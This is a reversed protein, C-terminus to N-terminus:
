ANNTAPASGPLRLSKLTDAFQDIFAETALTRRRNRRVLIGLRLGGLRTGALSISKIAGAENRNLLGLPTFFAVGLGGKVLGRLVQLNNSSALTRGSRELVSLEVDILSRLPEIDLQLLLSYQACESITVQNHQALPHDPAVMAMVPMPVDHRFEMDEPIALDFTIGLDVEGEAVLSSIEPHTGSQVTFNVAPNDKHFRIIQGPLVEALLSELTAIRVTGTRKGRIAGLESKLLDFDDLTTRAHRLVMTGAHTLRLGRPVREFLDVGLEDELKLIQRSVASSAVHLEAAAARISGFRAVASFYRLIAAHMRRWRGTVAAEDGAPAGVRAQWGGGRRCM